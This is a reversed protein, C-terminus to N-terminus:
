SARFIEWRGDSSDLLCPPDFGSYKQELVQRDGLDLGAPYSFLHTTEKRFYLKIILFQIDTKITVEEALVFLSPQM